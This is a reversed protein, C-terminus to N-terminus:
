HSLIISIHEENHSRAVAKIERQSSYLMNNNNNNDERTIVCASRGRGGYWESQESITWARWGKQGDSVILYDRGKRCVGGGGGKGQKGGGEKRGRPAM